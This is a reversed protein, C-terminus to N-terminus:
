YLTIHMLGHKPAIPGSGLKLTYQDFRSIISVFITSVLCQGFSVIIWVFNPGCDEFRFHDVHHKGEDDTSGGGGGSDTGAGEYTGLQM